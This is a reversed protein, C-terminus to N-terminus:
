KKLYKFVDIPQNNNAVILISNGVKKEILAIDRADGDAWLGHKANPVFEFIGNKQGKLFIGNSADNRGSEIETWYDNGVSLIDVVGDGDLDKVISKFIPSVQAETPLEQKEFKGQNNIFLCSELINATLNLSKKIESKGFLDFVTANAYESYRIFKKKLHPLQGEIIDKQAIPYSTGNEYYKCLIPDITGNKDFDAAYMNLPKKLSAKFRNNLGENGAVIDLDGDDDLDDVSVSKWWGNTNKLNYNATANVYKGNKYEFVSIPMWEGVAVLEDHGDKNLDGFAMDAIMGLNAFGKSVEKTADSFKGKGDNRFIYSEPALPYAGPSIRGGFFVDLDGDKDFDNLKIASGCIQAGPFADAVGYFGGKGDNFYLRPVFIGKTKTEWGSSILIFDLDGDGDVDALEGGCDEFIQDGRWYDTKFTGDENQIYFCGPSNTANGIYFDELNDNNVDGTIICPGWNSQKHVWLPFNDYDDYVNETHAFYIEDTDTSKEFLPQPKAINPKRKPEFTASEYAVTLTQNLQPKEVYTAKGDHWIIEVLAVENNQGLGFNLVKDVSSLFGRVTYLEKFLISGDTMTLKVKSGFAATNKRTGKLEIKLYNNKQTQAAINKYFFADENLNGVVLDMDGDLDFDAYAASNSFSPPVDMWKGSLNDFKLDGTNKFIFNPTKTSPIEDLFAVIDPVNEPTLGGKKKLDAFEFNIFDADIDRLYGNSIFLDKSGDLDFDELLAAWSWDTEDVGALSGIESFKNNGNNLHLHNRMIQHAFGKEQLSKYRSWRMTNFLTKQRFNDFAMMDNAILDVKGDNNYDAIDVGMTHLSMHPFYDDAMNVFAGKGTNIYLLDPQIYDNAVYLDPYGDDNFDSATVSLGYGFNHIGAKGSIDEFKGNGKNEYFRDSDFATRPRLDPVQKGNKIQISAQSAWRFDTPYNLLYLDLDGDLDFDIFNAGTTASVDRIGMEMGQEIFTNDKQNILVLNRRLLGSERGARCVFVDDWGDGNIDAVVVGSKLGGPFEIGASKSIDEFKLNGKNLFLKNSEQSSVYFLDPLKDNNVDIIGIGGGNSINLHTTVNDEYNETINNSFVLGTESPPLMEFIRDVTVTEEEIEPENDTCGFVLMLLVITPVFSYKKISNLLM